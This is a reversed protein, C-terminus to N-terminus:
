ATKSKWTREALPSIARQFAKSTDRHAIAFLNSIEDAQYVGQHNLMRDFDMLGVATNTEKARTFVDSPALELQLDPPLFPPKAGSVYRFVLVGKDLKWRTLYRSQLPRFDSDTSLGRLGEVVYDEPRENPSPVILDIYRLGIAQVFVDPVTKGFCQLVTSFRASFDAFTTYRTALFVLFNQQLIFGERNDPAVFDWREETTIKPSPSGPGLELTQIQGRRFIPYSKRLADQIAPVCNAITLYPSFRVQALVLALPANALQGLALERRM